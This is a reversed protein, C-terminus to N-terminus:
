LGKGGFGESCLHSFWPEPGWLRLSHTLPLAPQPGHSETAPPTSLAGCLSAGSSGPSEGGWVCGRVARRHRMRAPAYGSGAPNSSTYRAADPQVSPHNAERDKEMGRRCQSQSLSDWCPSGARPCTGHGPFRCGKPGLCLAADSLHLLYNFTFCSGWSPCFVVM